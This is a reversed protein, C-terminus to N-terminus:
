LRSGQAETRDRVAELRLEKSTSSHHTKKKKKLSPINHM